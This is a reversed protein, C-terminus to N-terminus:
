TAKPSLSPRLRNICTIHTMTVIPVIIWVADTLKPMYRPPRTIAPYAMPHTNNMASLKEAM